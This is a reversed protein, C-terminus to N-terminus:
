LVWMYVCGCVIFGVHVGVGVNCFGFVYVCLCTVFGVCM